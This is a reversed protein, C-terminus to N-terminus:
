QVTDSGTARMGHPLPHNSKHTYATRMADPQVAREPRTLHAREDLRHRAARAGVHDTVRVGPQGVREAAVVDCGGLEREEHVLEREVAEDVNHAAAAAGILVENQLM